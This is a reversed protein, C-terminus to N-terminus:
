FILSNFTIELIVKLVANLFSPQDLVYMPATEYLFSTDIVQIEPNENLLRIAEHISALRNGLNTGIGLFAISGEKNQNSILDPKMERTIEVASSSAFRLASPKEISVTTKFMGPMSLILDCFDIAMKELTQYNSQEVFRTVRTTIGKYDVPALHPRTYVSYDINVIQKEIRECDNVGIICSLSLHSVFIRDMLDDVHVIDEGACIKKLQNVHAKDRTIEIGVTKAHLLGHTKEVKVSVKELGLELCDLAVKSAIEELTKIDKREEALQQIHHSITSYSITDAIADSDRLEAFGTINFILIQEKFSSWADPGLLGKVQLNKIKIRDQM